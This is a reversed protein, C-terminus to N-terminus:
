NEIKETIKTEFGFTKNAWKNFETQYERREEDTTPYAAGCAFSVMLHLYMEHQPDSLITRLVTAERVIEAPTSRWGGQDILKNAKCWDKSEQRMRDIYDRDRLPLMPAMTLAFQFLAALHDKHEAKLDKLIRTRIVERPTGGHLYIFKGEATRQFTLDVGDDVNTAAVYFGWLRKGQALEAQLNDYVQQPVTKSLNLAYYAKTTEDARAWVNLTHGGNRDNSFSIGRPLYADLFRYRGNEHGSGSANRVKITETGDPHRQWVIPALMVKEAQTVIRKDTAASPAYPTYASCKDDAYGWDILAYCDDNIKEIREWYQRREGLPRVDRGKLAGRYPKVTNYRTEAEAFSNIKNKHHYAM